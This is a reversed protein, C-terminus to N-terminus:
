QESILIDAQHYVVTSWYATDADAPEAQGTSIPRPMTDGKVRMGVLMYGDADNGGFASIFYGEQALQLAAATIGSTPTTVTQAEYVTNLDGQWGYSVVYALQEADDFTVATIVRSQAGDAAVLAQLDSQLNASMPVSELRFDFGGPKDSKVWSVGYASMSTEVDLSTIVENPSIMPLLDTAVSSQFPYYELDYWATLGTMGPPLSFAFVDWGCGDNPACWGMGLPSGVSNPFSELMSNGRIGLETQSGPATMQEAILYRLDGIAPARPGLNLTAASSTASTLANDARVQFTAGDDAETIPPTTYTDSTAGSIDEGNKTWQFSPPPMGGANVSFTATRGLPVRQSAPQSYITVPQALPPPTKSGGSACGALGALACAAFLVAVCSIREM